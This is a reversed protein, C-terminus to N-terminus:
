KYLRVLLLTVAIVGCLCLSSPEPAPFPSGVVDLIFTPSSDLVDSRLFQAFMPSAQAYLEDRVFLTQADHIVSSIDSNLGSIATWHTNDVSVSLKSFANPDYAPYLVDSRASLYGTQAYFPFTFGFTVHGVIGGQWYNSRPSNNAVYPEFYRFQEIRGYETFIAVNEQEVIYPTYVSEQHLNFSVHLSEAHALSTCALVAIAIITKM